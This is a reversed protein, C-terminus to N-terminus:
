LTVGACSATSCATAWDAATLRSLPHTDIFTAVQLGGPTATVKGDTRVSVPGSSPTGPSPSPSPSPSTTPGPPSTPPPPPPPPPSGPTSDVYTYAGALTIAEGDIGTVVVDVTGAAHAPTQVTVSSSDSVQIPANIGDFAVYPDVPMPDISVTVLEGGSTSGRDPSVRSSQVPPQPESPAPTPEVTAPPQV